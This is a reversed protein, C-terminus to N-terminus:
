RKVASSMESVGLVVMCNWDCPFIPGGAVLFLGFLDQMSRHISLALRFEKEIM